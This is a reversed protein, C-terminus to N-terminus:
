PNISEYVLTAAALDELATGVSKFLTIEDRTNRRPGDSRSLDSLDGRIASPQLIGHAIPQLLDGAESLAGERTDVYISARRVAEDDTERMEPTYAGVLDLHTGPTLWRGLVLPTRSLTACSIIDAEPVAGELDTCPEAEFGAAEFGAAELATALAQAREPTRNWLTVKRIPRVAAHARILQPALAGAGVMLLHRSEPRALADAALASAAATRRVTLARADIQALPVGTSGELLLYLGQVSPLNLRANSPCVTAIKIGIYRDEIWAPMLLLTAAEGNSQPITHHHRQPIEAPNGFAQRLRAILPLYPLARHTADADVVLM